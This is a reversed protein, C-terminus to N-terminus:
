FALFSLVNLFHSIHVTTLLQDLNFPLNEYKIYSSLDDIAMFEKFENIIAIVFELYHILNM